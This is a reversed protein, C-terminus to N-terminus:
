AGAPRLFRQPRYLLVDLCDQGSVRCRLDPQVTDIVALTVPASALGVAHAIEHQDPALRCLACRSSNAACDAQAGRVGPM